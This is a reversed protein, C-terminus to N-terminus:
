RGESWGIPMPGYGVLPRKGNVPELAFRVRCAERTDFTWEYVRQVTDRSCPSEVTQSGRLKVGDRTECSWAVLPCLWAEPYKIQGSLTGVVHYGENGHRVTVDLHLAGKDSWAAAPRACCWPLVLASVIVAAIAVLAWAPHPPESADGEIGSAIMSAAFAFGLVLRLAKATM